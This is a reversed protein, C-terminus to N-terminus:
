TTKRKVCRFGVNSYGSDPEYSFRYACWPLIGYKAWSGGKLVIEKRKTDLWTSTWEWVNGAMDHCGYPSVGTPYQDVPTTGGVGSLRTNCRKSDWENGWPFKRGDTGRAAKEWEAETPLDKGIWRAYERAEFWTMNTAPHDEHGVPFAHNLKFEKFEANTVLFKDIHFSSVYVKRQPHQGGFFAKPVQSKEVIADIDEKPTGMLFDGEEVSAMNQVFRQEVIKRVNEVFPESFSLGLRNLDEIRKEVDPNAVQKFIKFVEEVTKSDNTLQGLAIGTLRQVDSSGEGLIRRLFNIAQKNKQNRALWYGFELDYLVTAALIFAKLKNNLILKDRQTDVIEFTSKGMLIGHHEWNDYEQRLLDQAEKVKLTELDIWEKIKNILYEHSLEYSEEEVGAVRRILRAQILDNILKRTDTEKWEAIQSTVLTVDSLSLLIRTFLSTVMSRLVIQAAERRRPGFSDLISDVYDALIQQVGGFQEYLTMTVHTTMEPLSNYLRDCVIQLQAPDIRGKESLKDVIIKVVDADFAIGFKEAPKTIALRADENSLAKLRYRNQYINQLRKLEHLEALFDERLSLIFTGEIYPSDICETLEQEFQKRTAEGLSVFFEEFQDIFIVLPRKEVERVERIFDPLSHDIVSRLNRAPFKPDLSRLRDLINKKISVLPVGFCRSYIPLYGNQILRPIIGACILSTKGIGSKGYLITLKSSLIKQCARVVDNDRGFFIDVDQEEFHNLFKYPSKHIGGELKGAVAAIPDKPPLQSVHGVKKVLERLLVQAPIDLLDLNRQKWVQVEQQTPNPRVAYARRPYGKKRQSVYSYLQHFYPDDLDFGIFLLTKTSVYYKLQDSARPLQDLFAVHDEKTIRISRKNEVDGYLKVILLKDDDISSLEEDWVTKVFSRGRAELIHELSNDLSTTIIINFLPEALIEYHQPFYNDYEGIVDSLYQILADRGKMAEFFQAVEALQLKPGPYQVREALRRALVTENLFHDGGESDQWGLFLVCNGSKLQEVIEVPITM